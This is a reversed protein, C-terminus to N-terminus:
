IEEVKAKMCRKLMAIRSKRLYSRRRMAFGLAAVSLSGIGASFLLPMQNQFIPILSILAAGALFSLAIVRNNGLHMENNAFDKM